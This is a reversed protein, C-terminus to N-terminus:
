VQAKADSRFAGPWGGHNEIVTDIEGILRRTETLATFVRRYHLIDGILFRGQGTNKGDKGGRDKLWEQCVQYGAFPFFWAAKPAENFWRTDNIVVKIM